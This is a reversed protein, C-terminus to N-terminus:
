VMARFRGFVGKLGIRCQTDLVKSVKEGGLVGLRKVERCEVAKKM